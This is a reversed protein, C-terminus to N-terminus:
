GRGQWAAAAGAHGILIVWILTGVSLVTLVVPGAIAVMRLTAASSVRPAVFAHWGWWAIIALMLLGMWPLLNHAEDVHKEVAPTVQVRSELWDGSSTALPVSVGAIVAIIPAGHSLWRRAAPWFAVALATLAATPVAVVTLHVLLPHAPLGAIQWDIAV